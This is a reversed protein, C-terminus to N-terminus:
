YPQYDKGIVVLLTGTYNYRAASRVVRGQRMDSALLEALDEDNTDKYIVLTEDYVFQAANGTDIVDWGIRKLEEECDAGVGSVGVGNWITVTAEDRMSEYSALESQTAVPSMGNNTRTVITRWSDTQIESYSGSEDEKQEVPASAQYIDGAATGHLGQFLTAAEQDTIDTSMCTCFLSAMDSVGESSTGLMKRCISSALTAADANAPDVDLPVLAEKLRNLGANNIEAYHAIDVSALRAVATVVLADGQGAAGQLDFAERLTLDGYADLYVRTDAPIWLFSVSQDDLDVHVLAVEALHGRGAEASSADTKVLTVWYEQANDESEVLVQSLADWNLDIKLANRVTMQYVFVGVATALALSAIIIVIVLAISRRPIKSGASSNRVYDGGRSSGAPMRGVGRGPRGTGLQLGSRSKLDGGPLNISKKGVGSLDLGSNKKHGFAM